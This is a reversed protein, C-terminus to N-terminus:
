RETGVLWSPPVHQLDDPEDVDTLPDGQWVTWSLADINALTAALVHESGWEVQAFVSPDFRAFGILVYGGDTAPLIAVDHTELARAADAIRAADLGPCDTGTVIVPEGQALTREVAEGMREGLDAGAQASTAVGKVPAEWGNPHPDGVLEVPGVKAGAAQLLAHGLMVRALRAAGDPGLAPILRSKARGEAPERAFVLIRTLRAAM